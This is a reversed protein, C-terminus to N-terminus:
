ITIVKNLASNKQNWEEKQDDKKKFEENKRLLEKYSETMFRVTDKDNIGSRKM